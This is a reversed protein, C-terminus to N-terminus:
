NAKVGLMDLMSKGEAKAEEQKPAAKVEAVAEGVAKKLAPPNAGRITQVVNGEKIVLFTPMATIGYKAAIEPQEDVDVKVFAIADKATHQTSLTEYVPAIAHCPGCWTAHFDVLVYTTSALLEQFQSTSNIPTPKNAM